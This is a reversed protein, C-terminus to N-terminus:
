QADQGLSEEDRSGGFAEINIPNAAGGIGGQNHVKSLQEILTKQMATIMAQKAVGSLSSVALIGMLGSLETGVSAEEVEWRTSSVVSLMGKVMKAVERTFAREEWGTHTPRPEEEKIM